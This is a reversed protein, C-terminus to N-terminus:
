GLFDSAEERARILLIVLGLAQFGVYLPCFPPRSIRRGGSVYSMPCRRALEFYTRRLMDGVPFKGKTAAWAV